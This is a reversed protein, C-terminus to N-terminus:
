FITIKILIIKPIGVKDLYMVKLARFHLAITIIYIIKNVIIEWKISDKLAKFKHLCILIKKSIQVKLITVILAPKIKKVLWIIKHNIIQSILLLILQFFTLEKKNEIIQIQLSKHYIYIFQSFNNKKFLKFLM